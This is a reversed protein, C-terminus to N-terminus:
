LRLALDNRDLDAGGLQRIRTDDYGAARLPAIVDARLDPVYAKLLVCTEAVPALQYAGMRASLLVTEGKRISMSQAFAAGYAIQAEGAILSLLAFKDLPLSPTRARVDLREWAFYRCAALFNRDYADARIALPTVTHASLAHFDVVQLAQEVHLARPRGSEDTRNWDYFRYTIDSQQQIEALVIGRGIAHVTGAPVFVVDGREVLVFALLDELTGRALADRVTAEAVDRRFGHVIRAGADAHLIYWAETKGFPYGERARSQADDPHVQVSLDQQADIFKFLLPFPADGDANDGLLARPHARMLDLLRTGAHAGNTIIADDHAEWSEGIPQGDSHPKHLQEALRQGGWLKASLRPDLRLPYWEDYTM